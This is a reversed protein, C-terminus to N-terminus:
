SGDKKKRRTLVKYLDYFSENMEFPGLHGIQISCDVFIKYGAERAKYCFYVDEGIDRGEKRSVFEYWPYEVDLYVDTKVLMCAAGTANVEVLGHQKWEEEPVPEVKEVPGRYLIPDFPPYRRHVKASVIPLNHSLLRKILDPPYTQDTDLQLLHTVGSELAQTVIDNRIEAISTTPGAPFQPRHYVFDPKETLTWSDLFQSYVKDSTLPLGIGLKFKPDGM